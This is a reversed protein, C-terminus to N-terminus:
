EMRSDPNNMRSEIRRDPVIWVLAVFIYLAVAGWQSAFSLPIAVAYCGMSLKGKLDKGVAAKLRSGPGQASVFATQLITYALAACILM